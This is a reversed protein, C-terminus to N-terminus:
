LKRFSFYKIQHLKDGLILTVAHTADIIISKQYLTGDMFQTPLM